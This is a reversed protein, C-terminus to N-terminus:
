KKRDQTVSEFIKQRIKGPSFPAVIINDTGSNRFRVVSAKDIKQAVIIVSTKRRTAHKRIIALLEIPSSTKLNSDLFVVIFDQQSILTETEKESRSIIIEFYMELANVIVQHLSNDETIILVKKGQINQFFLSHKEDWIKVSSMESDIPEYEALLINYLQNLEPVSEIEELEVDIEKITEESYYTLHTLNKQRLTELIEENVMTLAPIIRNGTKDFLDFIYHSGPKLFEVPVKKEKDFDVMLNQIGEFYNKVIEFKEYVENRKLISIVERQNTLIKINHPQIDLEPYTTFNFLREINDKTINEPFLSPIIIFLRPAKIKKQDCYARVLYNCLEIKGAELNGEIQVIIIKGRSNIDVIMPTNKNPPPPVIKFFLYLRETLANPDIPSSLFATVNEKKFEMLEDTSFDGIVFVPISSINGTTRKKTLFGRADFHPFEKHVIVLEPM